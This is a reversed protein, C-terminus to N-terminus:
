DAELGLYERLEAEEAELERRREELDRLSAQSRPMHTLPCTNYGCYPCTMSMGKRCIFDRGCAECTRMACGWKGDTGSNWNSRTRAVSAVRAM